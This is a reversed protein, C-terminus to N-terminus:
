FKKCAGTYIPTGRRLPNKRWLPILSDFFMATLFSTTAYQQSTIWNKAFMRKSPM